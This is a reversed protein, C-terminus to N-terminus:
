RFLQGTEIDKIPTPQGSITTSDNLYYDVQTSFYTKSQESTLAPKAGAPNASTSIIPQNLEACLNIILPHHSIRVAVKTHVGSVWRPTLKSKKVLWTIASQETLIIEKENETLKIYPMLQQLTGAVIILGKDISRQKLKLIREIGIKSLPDCGLGFVSETPYSIVGDNLIIGTAKKISHM